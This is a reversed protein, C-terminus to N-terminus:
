LKSDKYKNQAEEFMQTYKAQIEKNRYDREKNTECKQLNQYDDWLKILAETDDIKKKGFTIDSIEYDNQYQNGLERYQSTRSM